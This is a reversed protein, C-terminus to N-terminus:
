KVSKRYKKIQFGVFIGGAVVIILATIMGPLSGGIGQCSSTPEIGCSLNASLGAIIAIALTAVTYFIILALRTSKKM